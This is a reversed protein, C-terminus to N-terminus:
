RAPAAPPALREAMAALLRAEFDAPPTPVSLGAACAHGGGKFRAAVLDVRL